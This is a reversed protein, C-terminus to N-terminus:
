AEIHCDNRPYTQCTLLEGSELEDDDLNDANHMEITGLCLKSQCLMCTGNRCSSPIKVGAREATILITEGPQSVVKVNSKLFSIEFEGGKSFDMEAATFSEMHFKDAAVGKEILGHEIDAMMKDPGCCYYSHTNLDTLFSEIKDANLRGTDVFVLGEGEASPKAGKGSYTFILEFKPWAAALARLEDEYLTDKVDRFGFIATVNGSWKDARLSRIMSMLPTVGVGAGLLVISKSGKGGFCFDGFPGTIEFTDGIKVQDNMYISVYGDAERKISVDFSDRQTSASSISYPRNVQEGDITMVIDVYQGAVFKFRAKRNPPKFRFTKVTSSEAIINTVSWATKSNSSAM